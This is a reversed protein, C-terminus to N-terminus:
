GQSARHDLAATADPLYRALTEAVRRRNKPPPSSRAAMAAISSRVADRHLDVQALAFADANVAEVGFPELMEASFDRM